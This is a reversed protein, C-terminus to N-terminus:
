TFNVNKANKKSKVLKFATKATVTKSMFSQTSYQLPSLGFRAGEALEPCTKSAPSIILIEQEFKQCIESIYPM